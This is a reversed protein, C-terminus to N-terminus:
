ACFTDNFKDCDYVAILDRYKPITVIDYIQAEPTALVCKREKCYSDKHHLVLNSSSVINFQLLTPHIILNTFSPANIIIKKTFKRELEPVFILKNSFCLNVEDLNYAEDSGGGGPSAGCIIHNIGHELDQLVQMNHEDACMYTTVNHVIMLDYFKIFDKIRSGVPSKEKKDKKDKKEEKEEGESKEKKDKKDKEKKDKKDKEKNKIHTYYFIPIHGMVVKICSENERLTKEFWQLMKQLYEDKKEKPFFNIYEDAELLNTDIIIFLLSLPNNGLRQFKVSYFANPLFWNNFRVTNGSIQLDRLCKNIQYQLVFPYEVDHNGLAMFSPVETFCRFGNDILDKALKVFNINEILETDDNMTMNNLKDEYQKKIDKLSKDYYINDGILFRLKNHNSYKRDYSNLVDVLMKQQHSGLHYANLKNVCNSNWCGFIDFNCDDPIQSEFNLGSYFDDSIVKTVDMRKLRELVDPKDVTLEVPM